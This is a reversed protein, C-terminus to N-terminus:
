RRHKVITGLATPKVITQGLTNDESGDHRVM